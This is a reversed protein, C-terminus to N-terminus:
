SQDSAGDTVPRPTVDIIDKEDPKKLAAGGLRSFKVLEDAIKKLRETVGEATVTTNQDAAKELLLQKDVLKDLIKVATDANVPKRIIEGTKQNLIFEGNQLRDEVALNALNIAQTLKGSLQLKSARKIEQEAEAWWPSAKWKRLTIEPIGTLRMVEMINGFLLYSAVAEYKQKDSWWTNGGAKYKDTRYRVVPM